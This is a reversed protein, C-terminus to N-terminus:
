YFIIQFIKFINQRRKTYKGSVTNYWHTYASYFTDSFDSDKFKNKFMITTVNKFSVKLITKM